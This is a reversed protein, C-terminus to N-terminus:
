NQYAQCPLQSSNEIQSAFNYTSGLSIVILQRTAWHEKVQDHRKPCYLSITNSQFVQGQKPGFKAIGGSGILNCSKAPFLSTSNEIRIICNVLNSFPQEPLHSFKERAQKPRLVHFIYRQFVQKASVLYLSSGEESKYWTEKIFHRSLTTKM